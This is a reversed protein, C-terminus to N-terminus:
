QVNIQFDATLPGGGQDVRVRLLWSGSMGLPLSTKLGGDGNSLSVDKPLGPMDMGVMSYRISGSGAAAEPQGSGDLVKVVITERGARAPCPAITLSVRAVGTPKVQQCSAQGASAPTAPGCGLLLLGLLLVGPRLAGAKM